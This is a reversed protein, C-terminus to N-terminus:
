RQLVAALRDCPNQAVQNPTSGFKGRLRKLPAPVAFRHKGMVAGDDDVYRDCGPTSALEVAVRATTSPPLVGHRYRQFQREVVEWSLMSVVRTTIGDARLKVRTLDPLAARYREFTTELAQLAQHGRAAIGSAVSDYVYAPAHFDAELGLTGRYEPHGPSTSNRNITVTDADLISSGNQAVVSTTRSVLDGM